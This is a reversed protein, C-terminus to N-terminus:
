RSNRVARSVTMQSVGYRKGVKAQSLGSALLDRWEAILVPDTKTIGGQIATSRRRRGPGGTREPMLERPVVPHARRGRNIEMPVAELHAPEICHKHRCGRERVHDVDHGEPVPRKNALEWAVRHALRTSGKWNVQGYGTKKHIHLTWLLCGSSDEARQSNAWFREEPTGQGRWRSECGKRGGAAFRARQDLSFTKRRQNEAHTIAELHSPEICETYICGNDQVHDVQHGPPIEGVALLYAIRHAGETKGKWWIQPYGSNTIAGTWLLCGSGDTARETQAWLRDADPLTARPDDLSGAKTLRQYHKGCYGLAEHVGPCGPIKCGGRIRREQYGGPPM